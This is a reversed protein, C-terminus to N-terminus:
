APCHQACVTTTAWFVHRICAYMTTLDTADDALAMSNRFASLIVSKWSRSLALNLWELLNVAPAAFHKCNESQLALWDLEQILYQASSDKITLSADLVQM